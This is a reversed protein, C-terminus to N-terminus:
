DFRAKRQRSKDEVISNWIRITDPHMVVERDILARLWFKYVQYKLEELSVKGILLRLREAEEFRRSPEIADAIYLISDLDGMDEAGVTHVKIAHIVDEPIDPYTAHLYAAATPGHLVEPLNEVVWPGIEDVIGLEEARKRIAKNKYDKDWDHLLGALRAKAIDFGYVSALQAATQSVGMIHNFRKENVRGALEAKRENYFADGLVDEESM